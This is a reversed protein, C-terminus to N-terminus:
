RIPEWGLVPHVEHWGRHKEAASGPEDHGPAADFRHIGWIAIRQGLAPLRCPLEPICECIVARGNWELRIHVDGDAEHRVMAVRGEIRLHTPVEPSTAPEDAVWALAEPQFTRHSGHERAPAAAAIALAVLGFLAVRRASVRRPLRVEPASDSPQVRM